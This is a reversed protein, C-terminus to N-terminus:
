FCKYNFLYNEIDNLKINIVEFKNNEESSTLLRKSLDIKKNTRVIYYKTRNLKNIIKGDRTPYDKLYNYYDIFSEIDDNSVDIGLEEKLERILAQRHTEGNDVKGGPFMLIDAYNIIITNYEDDIIIARVKNTVKDLEEDKLNYKNNIIKEM